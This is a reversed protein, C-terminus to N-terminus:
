LTVLIEEVTELACRTSYDPPLFRSFRIEAQTIERVMTLTLALNQSDDLGFSYGQPLADFPVGEGHLALASAISRLPGTMHRRSANHYRGRRRYSQDLLMCVAWYNLNGIHRLAPLLEDKVDEGAPPLGTEVRLEHSPFHPHGTTWVEPGPLASHTGLFISKFLEFHEAEGEIRVEELRKLWLDFDILDPERSRLEAIVAEIKRYLSGVQNPRATGLIGYLQDVFKQDASDQQEPSISDAPAEVYVYKAVTELSLAELAFAFPYIDQEYPFQQRGLHPGAGLEVLLGNVVDLHTMEEIAVGLIHLPRGGYRHSAWGALSLYEPCKVSFAAYLYQVLLSHEIEAADRLLRILEILPNAFLPVYGQAPTPSAALSVALPIEIADLSFDARLNHVAGKEVTPELLGLMDFRETLPDDKMKLSFNAPAHAPAREDIARRIAKRYRAYGTCRCLNHGAVAEIVTEPDQQPLAAMQEYAVVGAVAFGAACYGCQMAGEDLIAQQVPHLNTGNAIGEITTVEWDNVHRMAIMCSQKTVPPEGPGHRVMVTCARCEGISCGIRTGTKGLVERLYHGLHMDEPVDKVIQSTGNVTFSVDSTKRLM